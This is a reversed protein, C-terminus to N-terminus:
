GMLGLYARLISADHSSVKWGAIVYSFKMNFDVDALVNQSTYNKKRWLV